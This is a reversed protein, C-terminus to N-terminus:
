ENIKAVLKNYIPDTHMGEVIVNVIIEESTTPHLNQKEHMLGKSGNNENLNTMVEVKSPVFGIDRDQGKGKRM